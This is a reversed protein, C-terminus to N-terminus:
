KAFKKHTVLAIFFASLWYIMAIVPYIYDKLQGSNLFVSLASLAPGVMFFLITLYSLKTPKGETIKKLNPVGALAISLTSCFVAIIPGTVYSLVLCTFAIGAVFWNSPKWGFRKKIVLLLLLLATLITYTAILLQDNNARATNVWMITDIILWLLISAFSPGNGVSEKKATAVQYGWISYAGTASAVVFFQLLNM